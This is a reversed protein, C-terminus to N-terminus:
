AHSGGGIQRTPDEVRLRQALRQGAEKAASLLSPGNEWESRYCALFVSDWYRGAYYFHERLRGEEHFLAESQFAEQNFEITEAYVKRLDYTKFLYDLMLHGAEVAVGHGVVSPALAMGLYATRDRLNVNHALVHGLRQNDKKAVVVFEIGGQGSRSAVFAEFSPVEGRLRWRFGTSPDTMLMYLFRLDEELVPRLDVWRGTLSAPTPAFQRSYTLSGERALSIDAPDPQQSM